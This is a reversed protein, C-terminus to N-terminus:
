SVPVFEYLEFGPGQEVLKTLVAFGTASGRRLTVAQELGFRGAPVIIQSPAPEGGQADEDPLIVAPQVTSQAADEAVVTAAEPNESLLECGFELASAKLTNRFWRVMAVQLSTRGEIRLAVLDGIRLATPSADTQRLAYGAPTHNIVQCHAMPPLGTPSRGGVAHFGRSYQWVGSLGACTVVRARSPLRNFQRAPPIAWQRLLRELLSRYQARAPGDRGVGDPPAGGADLHRLQEQIQFALDFTLLFLKSGDISGGKNASFPPFDHGIPVIAVAKAMRHVPPVDTLKAWHAHEHVYRLVQVLQGPLFGYPNALAVLLSQIVLREVTVHPADAALPVLHLSRERAFAYVAHADHWTRPPVPAYSLYSTVLIRGTCEICRHVLALLLRQGGLSIRKAAEGVLLRKYALALESALTLATKAAELAGGTLPHQAQAFRRELVPWLDSAARWYHEAVERRKGDSMAVRNTAALADGIIRAVEIPDRERLRDLWAAVEAPRIEPPHVPHADVAPLSLVLAM